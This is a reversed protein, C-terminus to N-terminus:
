QGQKHNKSLYDTIGGDKIAQPYVGLVEVVKGTRSRNHYFSILEKCVNWTIKEMGAEIKSYEEVPVDIASSIKEQTAGLM